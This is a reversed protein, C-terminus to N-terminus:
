PLFKRCYLLFVGNPALVYVPCSETGVYMYSGREIFYQGTFYGEGTAPFLRIGATVIKISSSIQSINQVTRVHSGGHCKTVTNRRHVHADPSLARM